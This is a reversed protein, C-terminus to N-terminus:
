KLVARAEELSFRGAYLAQGTIVSRVGFPALDKLLRLDDLSSVGGAAIVPIKLAVAMEKLAKLNPGALTGDRSIDTYIIEQVGYAQMKLAFDLAKKSSAEVWGKVAVFGDRADIGVLIKEGYLAAMEKVLEPKEVAATGLIVKSVGLELANQITQHDRIGGGLQLPIKIQSAIKEIIASNVPRGAFAGDLDIIHLRKAGASQWKLAVEVPNSSYVTEKERKGQLLRVCKGGHLDIAPIVLM